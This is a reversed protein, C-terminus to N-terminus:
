LSTIEAAEFGAARLIEDAHEGRRPVPGPTPAPQSAFRPAPNAQLMGDRETYVNRAVLHPHRAAEEPSLVPAFCTDRGELLASWEDRTRTACCWNADARRSSSRKGRHHIAAPGLDAVVGSASLREILIADAGLDALLMGCFPGPGIGALEVVTVGSLVAMLAARAM